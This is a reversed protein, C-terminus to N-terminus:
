FAEGSCDLIEYDGMGKNRVRRIVQGPIDRMESQLPLGLDPTASSVLKALWTEDTNIEVRLDVDDKLAEILNVLHDAADSLAM